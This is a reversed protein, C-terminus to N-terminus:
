KVMNKVLLNMPDIIRIHDIKKEPILLPLESCGLVIADCGNNILEEIIDLVHDRNYEDYSDFKTNNIIKDLSLRICIHWLAHIVQM